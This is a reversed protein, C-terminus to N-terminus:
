DGDDYYDNDDSSEADAINLMQAMMLGTYINGDNDIWPRQKRTMHLLGWAIGGSVLFGLGAAIKGEQDPAAFIGIVSVIAGAIFLSALIYIVYQRWTNKQKLGPPLSKDQEMSIGAAVGTAAATATESGGTLGGGMAAGLVGGLMGAAKMGKSQPRIKQKSNQKAPRGSNQASTPQPTPQRTDRSATPRTHNKQKQETQPLPPPPAAMPPPPPASAVTLSQISIEGFALAAGQDPTVDANAEICEVAGGQGIFTISGDVGEVIVYPPCEAGEPLELPSLHYLASMVENRTLAGRFMTDIAGNASTWDDSIGQTSLKVTATM